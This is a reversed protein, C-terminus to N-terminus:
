RVRRLTFHGTWRIDHTIGDASWEDGMSVPITVKGGRKATALRKLPFAMTRAEQPLEPLNFGPAEPPCRIGPPVVMWNILVHKDTVSFLGTLVNPRYLGAMRHGCEWVSQASRISAVSSGEYGAPRSVVTFLRPRRRSAPAFDLRATTAGVSRYFARGSYSIRESRVELHGDLDLDVIQWRASRSPAAIAPAPLTAAAAGLALLLALRRSM